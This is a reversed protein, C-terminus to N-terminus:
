HLLVAVLSYYYQQTIVIKCFYKKAIVTNNTVKDCVQQLYKLRLLNCCLLQNCCGHKKKPYQRLNNLNLAEGSVVKSTQVIKIKLSRTEQTVQHLLQFNGLSKIKIVTPQHDCYQERNALM